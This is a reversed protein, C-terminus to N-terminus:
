RQLAIAIASADHFTSFVQRNEKLTPLGYGDDTSIPVTSDRQSRRRLETWRDSCSGDSITAASSPRLKTSSASYTWPNNGSLRRARRSPLVKTLGALSIPLQCRPCSPIVSM